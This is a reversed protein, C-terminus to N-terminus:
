AELGVSDLERHVATEAFVDEDAAFAVVQDVAAVAVVEGEHARAVVREDPVRTVVVVGDFTLVPEVREDEVAGDDGLLDVMEALPSRAAKKRLMALTVM